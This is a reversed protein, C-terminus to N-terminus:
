DGAVRARQTERGRELGWESGQEGLAVHVLWLAVLRVFGMAETLFKPDYVATVMCLVISEM